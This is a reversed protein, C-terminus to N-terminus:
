SLNLKKDLLYYLAIYLAVIIIVVAFVAELLWLVVTLGTLAEPINAFWNALSVIGFIMLIQMIFSVVSNAGYYIGISVIVKARRAITAGFTICLYTFLVEAIVLLASLILVIIGDIVFYIGLEKYGEALFIVLEHFINNETYPNFMVLIEVFILVFTVLLFGCGTIIKSMLLSSRKVPLTFTLYGEDTFFNKFYRVHVLIATLIGFAAFGLFTFAIGMSCMETVMYPLERESANVMNCIYGLATVGLSSVVAIWWLKLIEKFDYKLLKRLM